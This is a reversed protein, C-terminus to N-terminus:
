NRRAKPTTAETSGPDAASFGDLVSEDVEGHAMPPSIGERIRPWLITPFSYGIAEIPKEFEKLRRTGSFPSPSSHGPIKLILGLPPAVCATELPM